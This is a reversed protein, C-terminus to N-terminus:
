SSSSRLNQLCFPPQGRAESRSKPPMQPWRWLLCPQLPSPGQAFLISRIAAPKGGEWEQALGLNAGPQPRLLVRARTPLLRDDRHTVCATGILKVRAGPGAM